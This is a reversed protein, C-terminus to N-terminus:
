RVRELEQIFERLAPDRKINEIFGGFEQTREVSFKFTRTITLGPLYLFRAIAGKITRESRFGERFLLAGYKTHFGLIATETLVANRNKRFWHDLILLLKKEKIDLDEIKTPHASRGM